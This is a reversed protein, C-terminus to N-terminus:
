QMLHSLFALAVLVLVIYCGHIFPTQLGDVNASGAECVLCVPESNAFAREVYCWLM